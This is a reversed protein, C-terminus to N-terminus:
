KNLKKLKLNIEDIDKQVKVVQTECNTSKEQKFYFFFIIIIIVIIVITKSDM